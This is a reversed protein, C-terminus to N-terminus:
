FPDIWINLGKIKRTKLFVTIWANPRFISSQFQLRRLELWSGSNFTKWIQLIEKLLILFCLIYARDRMCFLFLAYMNYTFILHLLFWKGCFCTQTENAVGHQMKVRVKKAFLFFIRARKYPLKLYHLSAKSFVKFVLVLM